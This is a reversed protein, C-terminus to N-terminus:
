NDSPELSLKLEEEVAYVADLVLFLIKGFLVAKPTGADLTLINVIHAAVQAAHYYRVDQLPREIM